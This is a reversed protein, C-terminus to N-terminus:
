NSDKVSSSSIDNMLLNFFEVTYRQTEIQDRSLDQGMKSLSTLQVDISERSGNLHRLLIYSAEIPQVEDSRAVLRVGTKITTNDASVVSIGHNKLITPLKSWFGVYDPLDVTVMLDHYTASGDPIVVIPTEPPRIDIQKGTYGAIAAKNVYFENTTPPTEMGKPVILPKLEPSQLYSDNGDIERKYREDSSCGIMIFSLISVVILTQKFM